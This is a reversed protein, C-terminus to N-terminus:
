MQVERHKSKHGCSKGVHSKLQAKLAFILASPPIQNPTKKIAM